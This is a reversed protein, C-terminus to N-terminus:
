DELTRIRVKSNSVIAIFNTINKQEILELAKKTKDITESIKLNKFRLIIRSSSIELPFKLIDLFDTDYTIIILNNSKAYRFLELDSKGRLNKELLVYKSDPYLNLIEKALKLPINEDILFKM